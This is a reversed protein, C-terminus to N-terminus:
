EPAAARWLAQIASRDRGDVRELLAVVGARAKPDSGLLSAIIAAGAEAQGDLALFVARRTAIPLSPWYRMVRASLQLKRALDSRDLSMGLCIWMEAAPALLGRAVGQLTASESVAAVGTLSRGAGSVRTLDLRGYDRISSGLVAAFLLCALAGAVRYSRQTGLRVAAPRSALMGMVLATVGLYHARWMPFELMSHIMEVGICALAWWSAANPARLYRRGARLWWAAIFAFVLAAGVVGTEALLHLFINHPSTWIQGGMSAPIGAAFAAGAFEGIGTGFLPNGGFVRLAVSWAEWKSEDLTGALRQVPGDGLPGIGLARVIWPIAFYAAWMALALWLVAARLRRLEPAKLRRPLAGILLAFWLAYLMSSRSVSLAGGIVLLAGACFAAWPALGRKAHVLALAACGLAVYNAYLTPAGINGWVRAGRFEGVIDQLWEPRGFFQIVGAAANLLAGALVFAALTCLARDPGHVTALQAGLWLLVLAYLPYLTGWFAMQPYPAERLLGCAAIYAAFGALWWAEAPLPIVSVDRAGLMSALALMALAVAIWEAHFSLLPLQRVHVLFPLMCASGALLLSVSAPGTKAVATM